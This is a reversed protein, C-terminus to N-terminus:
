IVFIYDYYYLVFMCTGYIFRRVNNRQDFMFVFCVCIYVCFYCVCLLSIIVSLCVFKSTMRTWPGLGSVCVRVPQPLLSSRTLTLTLTPRTNPASPRWTLWLSTIKTTITCPNWSNWTVSFNRVPGGSTKLRKALDRPTRSVSLSSVQSIVITTVDM